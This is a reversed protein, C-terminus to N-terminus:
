VFYMLNMNAPQEIKRKINHEGRTLMDNHHKRARDAALHAYYTPAPYSVSRNCRAYLHCLYYTLNEIEDANLDNDDWLTYYHTPRSTGQIGEHSVLFFDGEFPHNIGQDVVTGALVNGNREYKNNDTAFFRTHHRKQVVIYTIQPKYDPELRACANSMAVLEKALVKLFQGESVGDRFMIIKQPKKGKTKDYFGKLLKYTIDEMDQIIEENQGAEQIRIETLYKTSCADPNFSGVVAALSPKTGKSAPDAHSVDAGMIMIPSDFLKPRSTRTLTHNIGGLKSNMKLFINEISQANVAGNRFLTRQQVCQTAVFHKNDGLFKIHDYLQGDKNPLIIMIIDPKERVLAEFETDFNNRWRYFNVSGVYKPEAGVTLGVKSGVSKFTGLLNDYDRERLNSLDMIAWKQIKQGEVYRQDRTRWAGPSAANINCTKGQDYQITPPNLLRGTVQLMKSDLSIGFEKAHEDNKYFNTSEKMGDIIRKRREHPKVATGKIMNATAQDNLKKSRPMQQPLMTCFEMPVYISKDRAGVWLCPLNPYKLVTSYKNRFFQEVTMTEDSIKEVNAARTLGNIRYDRKNGDPSVYRIKLMKLDEELTKFDRYELNRLDINQQNRRELVRQLYPKQGDITETFHARVTAPQNAVDANLTLLIQRDKWGYPRVSTFTGFWVEKGFGLDLVQGKIPFFNRGITRFKTDYLRVTQQLIVDLATLCDLPFGIETRPFAKRGMEYFKNMEETVQLTNTCKVNKVTFKLPREDEDRVEIDSVDPIDGEIKKTSYFVNKGNFAFASAKFPLKDCLKVYEQFVKDYLPKDKKAYERKWPAGVEITYQHIEKIALKMPFHNVELQLQKGM